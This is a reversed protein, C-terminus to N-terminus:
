VEEEIKKEKEKERRLRRDRMPGGKRTLIMGMTELHRKKKPKRKKKKGM